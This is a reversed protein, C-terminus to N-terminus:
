AGGDLLARWSQTIGAMISLAIEAPGVAGIALGVPGHVRAVDAEGLGTAALRERRRVANRQSGLAGVYFAPSALAAILAPDDIKPDHSLVIVASSADPRWDALAEDPWRTDIRVGPFRDPSAFATRPDILLAEYGLMAAMPLLLQAIHVAGVVALRRAPRYLNVFRAEGPLDGVRSEGSVLDTTVALPREVAVRDLLAPSYSGERVAQVLIDVTGGCPLGFSWANGDDVGYSLQRAQGSAIVELAQSIVDGEVCGGSVSGEFLGDDRVVLHAGARRPASGWTRTVTAIATRHGARRWAAEAALVQGLEDHVASVPM